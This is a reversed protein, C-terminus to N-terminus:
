GEVAGAEKSRELRVKPLAHPFERQLFTILRERVLCRLDWCRSANRASVLARLTLVGKGADTVQMGCVRGDWLDGSDEICIRKLEERVREVPVTYDCEVFVTGLIDASSYTWNQFPTEVFYPLPVMLRREDWIKVVVYTFTIEEIRGWEGEVIVVDDLKFPQTLAIQVGAVVSGLTKQAAFGIVIGAVGASALLGTGLARLGDFAMLGAALGLVVVAVSIIRQFVRFQTHMARARLNDEVGVDFRKALVKEMVKLGRLAAWVYVWIWLIRLAQEAYPQAVDPWPWGEAALAAAYVGAALRTPGAFAKVVGEDLRNSTLRAVRRLMFLAVGHLALGVLVFAGMAVAPAFWVGSAELVHRAAEGLEDVTEATGKRVSDM